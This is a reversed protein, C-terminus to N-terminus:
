QAAQIAAIADLINKRTVVEAEVEAARQLSPLYPKASAGFKRIARAFMQRQAPERAANFQDVFVPLLEVPPNKADTAIIQALHVSDNADAAVRMFLAKAAVTPAGDVVVADLIAARFLSMPREADYRAVLQDQLAPRVDFTLLYAALANKRTEEDPDNFAAILAAEAPPYSRLDTMGEKPQSFKPSTSFSIMACCAAASARVQADQDSLASCLLPVINNGGTAPHEKELQELAERRITPDSNALEEKLPSLQEKTLASLATSALVLSGGVLILTRNLPFTMECWKRGVQTGQWVALLREIRIV